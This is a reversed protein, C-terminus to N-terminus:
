RFVETFQLSGTYVRTSDSTMMGFQEFDCLGFYVDDATGDPFFGVYGSEAVDMFIDRQTASIGRYPASYSYLRGTVERSIHGTRENENDRKKVIRDVSFLGSSQVSTYVDQWFGVQGLSMYTGANIQMRIRFYRYTWPPSPIIYYADNRAVGNLTRPQLIFDEAQAVTSFDDTSAQIKLTVKNAATINTNHITFGDLSIAAGFDIKYNSVAITDTRAEVSPYNDYANEAPYDTDENSMTLSSIDDANLKNNYLIIEASM